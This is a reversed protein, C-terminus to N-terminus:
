EVVCRVQFGSSRANGVNPRVLSSDFTLSNAYVGNPTTSWYGCYQGPNDWAGDWSGRGGAAPLFLSNGIQYGHTATTGNWTWTNATATGPAGLTTGGRFISGWQAQTPVRWGAPCPDASTKAGGNGWAADNSNGGAGSINTNENRSWGSVSGSSPWTKNKGWQYFYGYTQSTAANKIQDPTTLSADAGLNYCMFSLWTGSTTLAGCCACDKISATLKLQKDDGTGAANDNYVVFIDVTLAEANTKGLALDNLNDKYTISCAVPTSISNGPNGGTLNAIIQNTYSGSEVAYFRVNSVTGSPTFTYTQNRTIADSFDARSGNATLTENQRSSLNGCDGSNNVMAVDFCTRGAFSGSGTPITVPSLTALGYPTGPVQAVVVLVAPLFLFLILLKKMQKKYLYKM